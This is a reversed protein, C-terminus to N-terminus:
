QEEEELWYDNEVDPVYECCSESEPHEETIDNKKCCPMGYDTYYYQCTYCCKNEEM